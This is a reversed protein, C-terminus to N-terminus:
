LRKRPYRLTRVRALERLERRRQEHDLVYAEFVNRAVVVFAAFVLLPVLDAIM